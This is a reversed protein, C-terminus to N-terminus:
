EPKEYEEDLMELLTRALCIEGDEVGAAFTDDFNGGDDPTYEADDSPAPKEALGRLRDVLALFTAKDIM